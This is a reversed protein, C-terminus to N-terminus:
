HHGMIGGGFAPSQTLITKRPVGWQGPRRWEDGDSSMVQHSSSSPAGTPQCFEAACPENGACQLPSCGLAFQLPSPPIGLSPSGLLMFDEAYYLQALEQAELDKPNQHEHKKDHPTAVKGDFWPFICSFDEVIREIRVHYDVASGGTKSDILFPAQPSYHSSQQLLFNKPLKDYGDQGLATAFDPYEPLAVSESSKTTHDQVWKSYCLKGYTWCSSARPWPDRVVAFFTYNSYTASRCPAIALVEPQCHEQFSLTHGKFGCLQALLLVRTTSSGTKPVPLYVFQHKKSVLCLGNM